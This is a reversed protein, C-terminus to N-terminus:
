VRVDVRGNGVRVYAAALAGNAAEADADSEGKATRGGSPAGDRGAFAQRPDERLSFNLSGADTKLGADGLARELSRADRQLLDLTQPNEVVISARMRGDAFELKVDIRGLDGPRLQFSVQDQQDAVARHVKVAIQDMAHVPPQAGQHVAKLHATFDAHPASAGGDAARLAASATDARAAADGRDDSTGGQASRGGSGDTAAASAAATGVSADGITRSPAEGNPKAATLNAAIDSAAEGDGADGKTPSLASSPDSAKPAATVDM